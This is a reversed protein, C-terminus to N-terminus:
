MLQHMCFSYTDTASVIIHDLVNVDILQCAQKIKATTQKDSQSPTVQGSPHNHTLIVASSNLELAKKVIERPHISAQNITGFFLKEFRILRNQTDWFLVGFVEREEFGLQMQCYESAEKEDGFSPNSAYSRIGTERLVNEYLAKAQNLMDQHQTSLQM